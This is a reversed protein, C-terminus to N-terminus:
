CLKVWTLHNLFVYLSFYVHCKVKFFVQLKSPLPHRDTLRGPSGRCFVVSQTAHIVTIDSRGTTSAPSWPWSTVSQSGRPGGERPKSVAAKGGATRVPDKRQACEDRTDRGRRLLVGTMSSYSGVKLAENLRLQKKLNPGIELCLWMSPSPKLIYIKPSCLDTWTVINSPNCSLSDQAPPLLVIQFQLSLQLTPPTIEYCM